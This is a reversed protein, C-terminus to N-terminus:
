NRRTKLKGKMKQFFNPKSEKDVRSYESLEDEVSFEETEIGNESITVSSKNKSKINIYSGM